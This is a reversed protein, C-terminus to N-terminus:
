MADACVPMHQGTSTNEVNVAHAKFLGPISYREEMCSPTSEEVLSLAMLRQMSSGLGPEQLSFVYYFAHYTPSPAGAVLDKLFSIFESEREREREKDRQRETERDREGERM